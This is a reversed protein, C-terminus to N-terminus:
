RLYTVPKMGWLGLLQQQQQQQQQKLFHEALVHEPREIEDYKYLSTGQIEILLTSSCARIGMMLSSVCSSPKESTRTSKDMSPGAWVPKAVAAKTEVNATRTGGRTGRNKTKFCYKFCLDSESGYM